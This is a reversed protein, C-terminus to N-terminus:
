QSSISMVLSPMSSSTSGGRRLEVVEEGVVVHFVIVISVAEVVGPFEQPPCESRWTEADVPQHTHPILLLLQDSRYCAHWHSHHRLLLLHLHALDVEKADMLLVTLELHSGEEDRFDGAPDVETILPIRYRRRWASKCM